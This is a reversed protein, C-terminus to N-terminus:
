KEIENEFLKKDNTLANYNEKLYIYDNSLKKNNEDKFTIHDLIRKYEINLINYKNEM